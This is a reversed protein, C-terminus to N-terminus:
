AGNAKYLGRFDLAKAAFDERCKLSIGDVEFGMESELVPGEAGDLWCYEVTDVQSNNATLYWATASNADLIPEIVPDLATRGGQRFENVATQTSPVYNSSTLKYATQELAAPVILTTPVINLEEKQLGKQLRMATRATTLSSEQLASGAGTGLNAHDAHFLVVGDSLAANATLQAYVTRNELRAAAGGFGTMMRDFARLDDNILAQRTLSVIRGYTLLAYTEKGDSVAGYKFEGHENVKLLDPMASLQVVTMSKFDPANPARRAWRTFTGPNEEYTGRLRKNAVNALVNGFDSSGMMGPTGGRFQFGDDLSRFHLIRQALTMKDLGRTNVGRLELWDRGVELLSFGRFQSGNGTLKTRSDVRHMLAEVMGEMRTQVEDTVTEIRANRHGGSAQDRRALEDLIERGAQDVSRGGRILDAALQPLGHRQCLNTIDAARELAATEAAQREAAVDAAPAAPSPTPTTTPAGRQETSPPQQTQGGPTITGQPMSPEQSPHAAARIFECPMGGQSREQQRTGAQADAPVTVFSIESPTWRAARYLPMNVGDTRDSARTIEYRQVSYGVSITRIIGAKIDRVIGALEDRQSLRITARGEGNTIWGRTAIGMIASVGGYARHNDLVQVAGADFRSMDVAEESVALEEEYPTENWWDYRRVRSGTTWVVEVTNDSDSFTGPVLQAERVQVPMDRTERHAQQTQPMRRM